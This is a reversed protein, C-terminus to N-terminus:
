SGLGYGVLGGGCLGLRGIYTGRKKWPHWVALGEVLAAAGFSDTESIRYHRFRVGGGARWVWGFGIEVVVIM